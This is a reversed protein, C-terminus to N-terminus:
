RFRCCVLVFRDDAKKKSFALEILDNANEEWRFTLQHTDLDRFYQKAENSTSTGLGKKVRIPVMAHMFFVLGCLFSLLFSSMSGNSLLIVCVCVGKYYKFNYGKGDQNARKWNEYEPM